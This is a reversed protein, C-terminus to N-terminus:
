NSFSLYNEEFLLENSMSYSNNFILRAYNFTKNNTFNEATKREVVEIDSIRVQVKFSEM